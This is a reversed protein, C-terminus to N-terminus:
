RRARIASAIELCLRKREPDVEIRQGAALFGAPEGASEALVACSERERTVASDILSQIASAIDKEFYGSLTGGSAQIQKVTDIFKYIEDRTMQNM